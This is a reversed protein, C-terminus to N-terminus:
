LFRNAYWCPGYFAGYGEDYKYEVRVFELWRKEDSITVPLFAFFSEVRVSGHPTTDPQNILWKM